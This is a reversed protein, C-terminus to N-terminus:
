KILRGKASIRLRRRRWKVDRPFSQLDQAFKTSSSKSCEFVKNETKVWSYIKSHTGLSGRDYDVYRFSNLEKKRLLNLYLVSKEFATDIKKASCERFQNRINIERKGDSRVSNEVWIGRLCDFSYGLNNLYHIASYYAFFWHRNSDYNINSPYIYKVCTNYASYEKAFHEKFRHYFLSKKTLKHNALYKEREDFSNIKRIEKEFDSDKGVENWIKDYLMYCSNRISLLKKNTLYVSNKKFYEFSKKADFYAGIRYGPYYRSAVKNKGQGNQIFAEVSAWNTKKQLQEISTVNEYDSYGQQVGILVLRKIWDDLKLCAGKPCYQEIYGGIIRADHVNNLFNELYYEKNGFVIIKQPGGLNDLVKPIVGMTFPPKYILDKYSNWVDNQPCYLKKTYHQGSLLDLGYVVESEEPTVAIFNISLNDTDVDPNMDYFMHVPEGEYTKSLAFKENVQFWKPVAQSIIADANEKEDFINAVDIDKVIPVKSCGFVCLTFSLLSLNKKFRFKM